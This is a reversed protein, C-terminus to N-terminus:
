LCTTKPLFEICEELQSIIYDAEYKEDFQIERYAGKMIRMTCCGLKKATIFDKNPNDGIYIMETPHVKLFEMIKLYPFPDPKQKDSGYEDSYLIHDFFHEINLSKVKRKQVKVNGDTIIGLKYQYKKLHTLLQITDSYPFLQPTHNRYIEVLNPIIEKDHIGLELLAYDFTNGRGHKNLMYLLIDEVLKSNIKYKESIELSVAKFGGKVFQMEEYLTDDLDFVIAKIM